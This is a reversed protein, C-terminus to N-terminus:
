CQNTHETKYRVQPKHTPPLSHCRVPWAARRVDALWRSVGGGGVVVMAQVADNEASHWGRPNPEPVGGENIILALFQSTNANRNQQQRYM